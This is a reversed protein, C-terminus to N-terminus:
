EATLQYSFESLDAHRKAHEFTMSVVFGDRDLEVLVNENLDRTEAIERDGFNVMLTDTDQFYKIKM